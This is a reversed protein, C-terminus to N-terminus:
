ILETTEIADKIARKEKETLNLQPLRVRGDGGAMGLLQAWYKYSAQEKGSAIASTFARRIPELRKYSAWAKEIEGRLAYDTYGKVLKLKKSQLCCPEVIAIMAEQGKVTMNIFWNEEWCDSVVIKDGCLIRTERLHSGSAIDKIAVVNEITAIRSILQPSM